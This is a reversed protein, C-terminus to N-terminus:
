EICVFGSNFVGSLSINKLIMMQIKPQINDTYPNGTQRKFGYRACASMCQTAIRVQPAGEEIFYDGSRCLVEEGTSLNKM